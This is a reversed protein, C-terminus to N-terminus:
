SAALSAAVRDVAESVPFVIEFRTGGERGVRLEGGIQRVLEEVVRLGSCRGGSEPLGRGADSVTLRARGAEADHRLTVEVRGGEDGYAHKAANTVLEVVCLALPTAVGVDLSLPDARVEVAIGIEPPAIADSVAIRKLLAAFDVDLASGAQYLLDHIAAIALVRAGIADLDPGAPRGRQLHILAQIMQLSNKVRHNMERLMTEKIAATKEAEALVRRDFALAAQAAEARLGREAYRAMAYTAAGISGFVVLARAMASLWDRLLTSMAIGFNAYLPLGEVRVTAYIRTRGDSVATARYLGGDRERIVRMVSQGADLRIPKSMPVNRVLLLGDGRLVSAAEGEREAIRDLFQTLVEARIASVWVGAGPDLVRPRRAIVLADVDIPQVRLRDVYLGDAPAERLYPREGVSGAAPYGVSTVVFDGDRDVFAVEVSAEHRAVLRKLFLHADLDQGGDQLLARLAEDAATLMVDQAQILRLVYQEILAANTAARAEAREVLSQWAFFGYVALALAAAAVAGWRLVRLMRLADFRGGWGAVTAAEAEGSCTEDAYRVCGLRVVAHAERDHLYMENRSMGADGVVLM